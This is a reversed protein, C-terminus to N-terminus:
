EIQSCERLIQEEGDYGSGSVRRIWLIAGTSPM